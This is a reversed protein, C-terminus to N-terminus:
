PTCRKNYFIKEDKMREAKMEIYQDYCENCLFRKLEPVYNTENYTLPVGCNKNQCYQM